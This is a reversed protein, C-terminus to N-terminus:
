VPCRAQVRLEEPSSQLLSAGHEVCDVAKFSATVEDELGDGGDAVHAGAREGPAAAGVRKACPAGCSELVTSSGSLREHAQPWLPKGRSAM